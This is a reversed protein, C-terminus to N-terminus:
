GCAHPGTADGRDRPELDDRPCGLVNPQAHTLAVDRLGDVVHQEFGLERHALM